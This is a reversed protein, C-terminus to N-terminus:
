RLVNSHMLNIATEFYALKNKERERDAFTPRLGKEIIKIIM